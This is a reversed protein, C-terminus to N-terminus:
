SNFYQYVLKGKHRGLVDKLEEKSAEKVRKVSKFNKLLKVIAKEGIGKISELESQIADKSRLNRHLTIGFRH